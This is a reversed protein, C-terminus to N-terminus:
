RNKRPPSPRVVRFGIANVGYGPVDYLRYSCELVEPGGDGWSGGRLAKWDEDKDYWNEMWEWVNGAMDYLGEPTAGDPYRGVPTTSGENEDYNVHKATPEPKEGWPYKLVELVENPKERRGGAAWEWEIENPLRYLEAEKGGSELLSLWLCYAKADFWSVGVVPQDDKNFKRADDYESRFLRVYDRETSLYDRLGNVSTDGSDALDKLAQVYHGLSLRKEYGFSKGALFDIFSRYQKNTVPYKAVYLDSATVEQESKSYIYKGGPILIYQTNHEYPNRFFGRRKRLSYKNENIKDLDVKDREYERSLVILLSGIVEEARNKIDQNLALGKKQFKRLVKLASTKEIAKLFDLIYRQQNNTTEADLLKDCLADTKKQPAEEILTDLLTQQKSSLEESVKDQFLKEMFHDFMEADAQGMFFKLPENWWDEGFHIVLSDIHGSTRKTKEVLQVGALYERFTKHRFVYDQDGYEALLGARDVLNRCFDKATPPHDFTDLTEQMKEHMAKREVEDAKLEQQMWLAVPALVRRAKDAPLLPPIKRREDRYELLYDLAASYLKLRNGPLFDREKWLIAMIQLMMPIAALERMGKNEPKKLYKVIRSTREKAHNKQKEIWQEANTRVPSSERLYAATFWKSLFEEQQEFTFDMVDARIHDASLEVGEVKRYGTFRSTVVFCAEPFGSWTRDIWNCAGKRKELDSIEDLGDFLVLSKTDKDRLWTEFVEKEISNSRQGAWLSLQEPLSFCDGSESTKLDRLPLYFVRVPSQSGFLRDQKNQLCCLAYYKMLTTKGSGPDGIVLLMRYKPFVQKMMEDPSHHYMEEQLAAGHKGKKYRDETKWNHSIRLPVFTDDLNVQVSDIDPSGILRINGLEEKLTAQYRREIERYNLKPQTKAPPIEEHLISDIADTLKEIAITSLHDIDKYDSLPTVSQSADSNWDEALERKRKLLNSWNTSAELDNFDITEPVGEPFFALIHMNNEQSRQLARELEDWTVSGAREKFVFVAIRAHNLAPDVVKKQGGVQSYADHNWEWFKLSTFKSSAARHALFQRFKKELQPQLNRIAEAENDADDSHGIFILLVDETFEESSTIADNNQSRKDEKCKKEAM